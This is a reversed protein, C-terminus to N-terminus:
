LQCRNRRYSPRFNNIYKVCCQWSYYLFLRSNQNRKKKKCLPKHLLIAASELKCM